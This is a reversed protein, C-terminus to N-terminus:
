HEEKRDANDNNEKKDSGDAPADAPAADGKLLAARSRQLLFIGVAAACVLIMAVAVVSVTQCGSLPRPGTPIDLFVPVLAHM